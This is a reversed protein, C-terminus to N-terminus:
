KLPACAKELWGQTEADVLPGIEKLVRAHYADLWAREEATLLSLEIPRTDIPALTLTEFDMMPREAGAIEATQVLVLNEIRIGFAGERYYGPENSLIMGPELTVHGLKSIRQPGEHVSLYSGVGHGTGHDFDTGIDWLARRALPDLQAGSTGKPFRVTAIAIHGKLVRTYRDRMEATTEGVSITRTIDTTGDEYQGGSDILFLGPEVVRNSARMVRYHPLAANPGAASITTFSIDKLAGTERRFSELAEAAGIEDVKGTPAERDFWALFRAMAAGDRVHASRTGGIEVSNKVAKLKAIPGPAKIVTAEASEFLAKVQEPAMGPDLLVHPRADAFDKLADELEAEDRLEALDALRDRISNSLKRNDILLIPKGEARVVAWALPLPTHSVDGGRINFLWAIDHADSLVVADAKVKKIEARVKDLKTASSDGAFREPHDVVASLPPAPRNIWIADILNTEVPVLHANIADCAKKLREVNEITHLWPDFGLRGGPPFNEKIWDTTSVDGINIPTVLGADVQERAQVTYRGDIFIIARDKLILAMGASGTFGTLWALREESKPVYENQHADSRPVLFGDLTLREMEARLKAIRGASAAKQSPEDFSQFVSEFM